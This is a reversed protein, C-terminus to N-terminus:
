KDRNTILEAPSKILLGILSTIPVVYYNPLDRPEDLLLLRGDKVDGYASLGLIGALLLAAIAQTYFWLPLRDPM